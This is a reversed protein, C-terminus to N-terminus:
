AGADRRADAICQARYAQRLKRGWEGVRGDGILKGDVRVIPLVERV